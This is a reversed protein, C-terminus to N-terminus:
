NHEISNDINKNIIDNVSKIKEELEKSCYVRWNSKEDKIDELTHGEKNLVITSVFEEKYQNNIKINKLM